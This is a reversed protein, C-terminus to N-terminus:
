KRKLIYTIGDIVVEKGDLADKREIVRRDFEEKSLPNGNIWYENHGSPRVIAPGDERHTLGNMIWEETGDRWRRAPGGERHLVGNDTRWYEGHKDVTVIYKQM